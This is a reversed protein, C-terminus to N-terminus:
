EKLTGFQGLTKQEAHDRICCTNILIVDANEAKPSPHFGCESLIGSLVESDHVNMQCGFTYIYYHRIIGTNIQRLEGVAKNFEANDSLNIINSGM